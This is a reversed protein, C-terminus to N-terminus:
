KKVSLKEITMSITEKPADRPDRPTNAIIDVVEMGELVQGYISYQNDLHPSDAHMIFFQSTASNIDGGKRAASLIGRKHSLNSFEAPVTTQDPAGVGWMSRNDPSTKTNPDGGQIMFNPIVRHFVTGNYFGSAVLSDFHQAHKPAVDPFTELTIKGLTQSGQTVTIIYQPRVGAMKEGETRSNTNKKNNAECSSLAVIFLLIFSLIRM